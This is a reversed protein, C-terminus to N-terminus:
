YGLGKELFEDKEGGLIVASEDVMKQAPSRSDKGAEGGGGAPLAGPSAALRARYRRVLDANSKPSKTVTVRSVTEAGPIRAPQAAPPKIALQNADRRYAYVDGLPLGNDNAYQMMNHLEIIKKRDEPDIPEGNTYKGWTDVVDGKTKYQPQALLFASVTQNVLQTSIQKKSERLKENKNSLRKADELAEQQRNYLRLKEYNPKGTEPDEIESEQIPNKLVEGARVLREEVEELQRDVAAVEGQLKARQIAQERDIAAQEHETAKLEEEKQAQAKGVVAQYDGRQAQATERATKNELKVYDKVMREKATDSMKGWYEKVGYHEQAKAQIETEAYETGNIKYKKEAQVKPEPEQELEKEIQKLFAEQDASLDENKEIKAQLAEVEAARSDAEKKAADAETDPKKAQEQEKAKAVAEEQAKQAEADKAEMQAPTPMGKQPEAAKGKRKLTDELIDTSPDPAKTM